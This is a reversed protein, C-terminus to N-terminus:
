TWQGPYGRGRNAFDVKQARMLRKHHEHSTVWVPEPGLNWILKANGEEFYCLGRGVSFQKVAEAGCTRCPLCEAAAASSHFFREDCHGNTCRYDYLPM